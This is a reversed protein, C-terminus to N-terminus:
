KEIVTAGHAEALKRAYERAAKREKGPFDKSERTPYHVQLHVTPLSGSLFCAPSAWTARELQDINPIEPVLHLKVLYEVHNRDFAIRREIHVEKRFIVTKVKELQQGIRAKLERLKEMAQEVHALDGTLLEEHYNNEIQPEKDQHIQIIIM